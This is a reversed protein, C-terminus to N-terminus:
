KKLPLDRQAGAKLYETTADVLRRAQEIARKLHPLAREVDAPNRELIQAIQRLQDLPPLLGASVNELLKDKLLKDNELEEKDRKYRQEKLKWVAIDQAVLSYGKIAGSRKHALLTLMVPQNGGDRRVLGMEGRWIGDKTALPLCTHLFHPQAWVPLLDTIFLDCVADQHVGLLECGAANLRLLQGAPNAWAIPDRGRDVLEVALAQQELERHRRDTDRLITLLCDRGAHRLSSTVAEVWRADGERPAVLWDYRQPRGHRAADIHSAEARTDFGETTASFDTLRQRLLEGRSCALLALTATNADLIDLSAADRVLMADGAAAFVANGIEHRAAAPAPAQCPTILCDIRLPVGTENTIVKCRHLVWTSDGAGSMLRYVFEAEGAGNQRLKDMGLWVAPKDAPDIAELWFNPHDYLVSVPEGYLESASLSLYLLRDRSLPMAFAVARLGSMVASGQKFGDLM